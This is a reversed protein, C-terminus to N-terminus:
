ASLENLEVAIAAIHIRDHLDAGIQAHHAKGRRRFHPEALRDDSDIRRRIPVRQALVLDHVLIWPKTAQKLFKSSTSEFLRKPRERSTGGRKASIGRPLRSAPRFGSTRNDKSIDSSSACRRLGTRSVSSM